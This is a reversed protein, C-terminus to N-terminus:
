KKSNVIKARSASVVAAKLSDVTARVSGNMLEDLEDEFRELIRIAKPRDIEEILIRAAHEAFKQSAAM